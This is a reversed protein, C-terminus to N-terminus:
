NGYPIGVLKGYENYFYFYNPSIVKPKKALTKSKFEPKNKKLKAPMNIWLQFGLLKGGNMSPM